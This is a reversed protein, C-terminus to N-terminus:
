DSDLTRIKPRSTAIKKVDNGRQYVLHGNLYSMVIWRVFDSSTRGQRATENQVRQWQESSFRVPIARDYKTM